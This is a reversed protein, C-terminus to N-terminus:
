KVKRGARSYAAPPMGVYKKFVRNFYYEDPIGVKEGIEGMKMSTHLVLLRAHSIRLRTLYQFVTHGTVKKFVRNMYDFNGGLEEELMVSTIERAYERNLWELIEQVKPYYGPLRHIFKDREGTTFSRSMEIFAQQVKCACLMKYGELPDYNERVAEKLLENIRIRDGANSVHWCKPLYIVNQDCSSYSFKDSGLSDQREELLLKMWEEEPRDELRIDEHSFHIYYYECETAKVGVHTRDKDLVCIDGPVLTVPEGDETLVMEGHRIVYVIYEGAKRKRHVYPPYIITEDVFHIRPLVDGKLRYFEM